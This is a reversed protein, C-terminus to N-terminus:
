LEFENDHEFEKSEYRTEKQKEYAQQLAAELQANAENSLSSNNINDPMLSAEEILIDFHESITLNERNINKDVKKFKNEYIKKIYGRVKNDFGKRTDMYSVRNKFCTNYTDINRKLFPHNAPLEDKLENYAAKSNVMDNYNKVFKPKIGGLSSKTNFKEQDVDLDDYYKIEDVIDSVKCDLKEVITNKIKQVFKLNEIPSYFKGVSTGEFRNIFSNISAEKNKLSSYRKYEPSNKVDSQFLAINEIKLQEIELHQEGRLTEVVRLRRQSKYDTPDNQILQELEQIESSYQAYKSKATELGLKIENERAYTQSVGMSSFKEKYEPYSAKQIFDMQPNYKYVDKKANSYSKSMTSMTKSRMLMEGKYGKGKYDLAAHKIEAKELLAGETKYIIMEERDGLNSFLKYDTETENELISEKFSECLDLFKDSFQELEEVTFNYAFSTGKNYTAEVDKLAIGSFARAFLETPESIYDLVNQYKANAYQYPTNKYKDLFKDDKNFFTTGIDQILSELKAHLEPKKSSIISDYVYHGYEHAINIGTTQSLNNNDSMSLLQIRGMGNNYLGATKGGLSPKIEFNNSRLLDVPIIDNIASVSNLAASLTEIQHQESISNDISIEGAFPLLANTYADIIQSHTLDM